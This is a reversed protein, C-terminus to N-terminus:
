YNKIFKNLKKVALKLDGLPFAFSLRIYGDLGFAKGPVLVLKEQKLLQECFKVSNKEIKSINIFFYFAGQPEIFSINKIKNLEEVLYDKREKYEDLWPNFKKKDLNLARITAIQALNCVNGSCQSQLNVMASIIEKDAAMWGVRWGALAHSKSVSDVIITKTKNVQAFSYFEKSFLIYRYPDDSIVFINKNKIIKNLDYIDKKNYVQGTPNNPSNLIIARTKKTINKAIAQVDLQWDPRCQVYVPTGGALKIQEGYSVWAPLTIIVEDGPNLLIQFLNYLAQKAGNTVIIENTKYQLQYDTKIESIIAKKLLSLGSPASYKNNGSKVASIIASKIEQHTDFNPQGTALNIVKKGQVQMSKALDDLKITESMACNEIRKSLKM